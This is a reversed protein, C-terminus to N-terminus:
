RVKQNTKLLMVFIPTGALATVVGIPLEMPAFLTRSVMDCAVMFIAAAVCASPILVKHNPGVVFRMAHPIILGVFGIVGCLCVISATICSTTFFLIKKMTEANIGLHIAEEEGLSMANLDQAFVFIVAIGAAVVLAVLAILTTDYVQLSGWLWWVMGHLAENSSLSILFVMVGSFALSVIVGSLILSQAPIKNGQRAVSYVIVVAVLAGILAALPLLASAVGLSVAIVAGLGAGSSTGLLYPEALPNRLIAQLAIGSVALGSGAVAAVLVRVIRLYLIARNEGLLLASFSLKVPGKLVAIFVVACLLACLAAIKMAPTIKM